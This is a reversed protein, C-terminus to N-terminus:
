MKKIILYLITIIFILLIIFIILLLIIYPLIISIIKDGIPNILCKNITKKNNDDDLIEISKYILDNIFNNIM